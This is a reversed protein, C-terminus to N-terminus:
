VENEGDRFHSFDWHRTERWTNASAEAQAPHGQFCEPKEASASLVEANPLAMPPFAEWRRPDFFFWILTSLKYM